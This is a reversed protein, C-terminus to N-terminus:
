AEDRDDLAYAPRDTDPRSHALGNRLARLRDIHGQLQAPTRGERLAAQLAEVIHALDGLVRRTHVAATLTYLERSLAALDEVAEDKPFHARLDSVFANLATTAARVTKFEANAQAERVLAQVATLANRPVLVVDLDLLRGLELLTSLRPDIAGREINSIHAQTLAAKESLERQSWGKAARARRLDEAFPLIQPNM